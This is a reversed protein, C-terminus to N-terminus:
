ENQQVVDIEVGSSVCADRFVLWIYGDIMTPGVTSIAIFLVALLLYWANITAGNFLPVPFFSHNNCHIM